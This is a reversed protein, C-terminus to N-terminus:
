QSLRTAVIHGRREGCAYQASGGRAGLFCACSGTDACEPPLVRCSRTAGDVCYEDRSCADCTAVARTPFLAGRVLRPAYDGM